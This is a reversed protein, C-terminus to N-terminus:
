PQDTKTVGGYKDKNNKYFNIIEELRGANSKKSKIRKIFEYHEKTIRIIKVFRTTKFDRM